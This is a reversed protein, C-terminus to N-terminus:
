LLVKELKTSQSPDILVVIPKGKVVGNDLQKLEKVMAAIVRDGFQKIDEKALIQTFMVGIAKHFYLDKKETINNKKLM